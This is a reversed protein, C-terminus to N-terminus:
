WEELLVKGASHGEGQETEVYKASDHRRGAGVEMVVDEEKQRGNTKRGTM